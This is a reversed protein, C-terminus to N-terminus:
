PTPEGFGGPGSTTESTGAGNITVTIMGISGVEDDDVQAVKKAVVVTIEGVRKPKYCTFTYETGTKDSKFKASASQPNSISSDLVAFALEHATTKKRCLPVILRPLSSEESM